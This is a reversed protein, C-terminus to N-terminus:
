LPLAPLRATQSLLRLVFETRLSHGAGQGWRWAEEQAPLLHVAAERHEMSAPQETPQPHPCLDLLQGLLNVSDQFLKRSCCAPLVSDSDISPQKMKVSDKLSLM